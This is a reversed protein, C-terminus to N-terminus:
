PNAEVYDVGSRRLMVLRRAFFWWLAILGFLSASGLLNALTSLIAGGPGATPPLPQIWALPQLITGLLWVILLRRDVRDLPPGSGGGPAVLMLGVSVLVLSENWFSTKPAGITAAVIAFGIGAALGVATRLCTRAEILVALTAIALAGTLILTPPRPDFAGPVIAFLRDSSGVLRSVFGNISSNTWYADPAFLSALAGSGTSANPALVATLVLAAVSGLLLGAFARWRGGLLVPVLVVGPVLKVVAALGVAAGGLISHAAPPSGRGRAEERVIMAVGAAMLAVILLNAQGLVASGIAPPYLGAALALVLGRRDGVVPWFAGLWGAVALGFALISVTEFLALAAGFPLAALPVMLLAFPPPYSYGGGVLYPTSERAALATIAGIDYPTGGGAVLRGALWYDHFDNFRSGHGVATAAVVGIVPGA